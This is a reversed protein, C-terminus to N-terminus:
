PGELDEVLRALVDGHCSEPACWCCLLKGRLEELRSLLSPKAPLYLHAYNDVVTQRDGDEPLVFPNGWRTNRDIREYYGHIAAWAVVRQHHRLNAVVTRGAQLRARMAEEETTWPDPPAAPGGGNIRSREREVVDHVIETVRSEGVDGEVEAIAERVSSAVEALHPRIDRADRESLGLHSGHNVGSAESLATIVRAQDLLQYARRRSMDFETEVYAKFSGYGLAEWARQDHAQALLSWLDGAAQRIRDTLERAGVDDLVDLALMGTGPGAREALREAEPESM